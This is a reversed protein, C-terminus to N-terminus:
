SRNVFETWGLTWNNATSQVAGIYSVTTFFTSVGNANFVPRATESSGNVYAVGGTVQPLLTSAALNTRLNNNGAADFLAPLPGDDSDTALQIASTIYISRFVINGATAQAYSSAGDIDLAAQRAASIVANYLRIGTGVRFLATGGSATISTTSAASGVCTLNSLIPNSRPTAENNSSLNDAEICTDGTVNNQNQIHLLFQARGTWGDTWDFADDSTGDCILHKADVTGGFWEFCDDYGQHVQVYDVTTGNGVAQFAVGNLENVGAAGGTAVGVDFGAYRIQVYRLIGSNDAANTGGAIVGTSGEGDRTPNNTPALGNLVLGGWEGTTTGAPDRDTRGRYIARTPLGLVGAYGLDAASTFIIPQGVTGDAIIQSGRNVNIFANQNAAYITVGPAITLTRAVGAPGTINTGVDLRTNLQYINGAPLTLNANLTAPLRCHQETGVTVQTTQSPCNATGGGSTTTTSTSSTTSTGPNSGTNGPNALDATSDAGCAALAACAAGTMFLTTLRTFTAM